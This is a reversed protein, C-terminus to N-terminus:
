HRAEIRGRVEGLGVPAGSGHAAASLRVDDGDQLFGLARGDPLVLPETGNRTLEILSGCEGPDAGSVTSAPLLRRELAGRHRESAFAVALAQRVTRWTGPGAALLPDLTGGAFLAAEDPLLHKSAATLDLVRNGVAVGVRPRDDRATTFSGYPLNQVGFPDDEALGLWSPNGEAAKGHVTM